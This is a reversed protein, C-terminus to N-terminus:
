GKIKKAILIIDNKGSKEIIKNVLLNLDQFPKGIDSNTSYIEKIMWKWKSIIEQIKKDSIKECISSNTDFIIWLKGNFSNFYPELSELTSNLSIHGVGSNIDKLIWRNSMKSISLRDKIGKFNKLNKLIEEKKLNLIFSIGVYVLIANFYGKGILEKSILVDLSGEIKNKNYFNYKIELKKSKNFIDFDQIKAKIQGTEGFSILKARTITNEVLIKTIEDDNNYFIISNQKALELIQKKGYSARRRSNAIPYNELINTLIGINALGTGGLSIEFVGIEFDQLYDKVLLLYPPAIEIKKMLCRSNGNQFLELGRSSLCLVTKQYSLLLALTIACTTKGRTGTIEIIFKDSLQQELLKGVMKHFSIIRINEIIAKSLFKPDCHVPVIILDSKNFSLANLNNKIQIGNDSFQLKEESSMTNYIDIGIVTGKNKLEKALIKGGHTMDVIIFRDASLLKRM